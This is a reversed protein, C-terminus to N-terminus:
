LAATVNEDFGVIENELFYVNFLNHEGDFAAFFCTIKYVNM